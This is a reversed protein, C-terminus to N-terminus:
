KKSGGRENARAGSLMNEMAHNGEHCAYEYLPQDSRTMPLQVTWPRTWATPDDVVFEYILTDKDKLTFRETLHLNEDAASNLIIQGTGKDSFNTTDVVLTDGEWHGRSDGAWLRVEPRLHPRGDLYLIRANHVMENLFAIETTTQFIQVNNNYASPAMPPGANFGMICREGLSRDEPGSPPALWNKRSAEAKQQGLATMPPLRGDKPDVVLSTRMTGVLKTGREWWFDNYASEVDSVTHGDRQDKNDAAILRKAFAEAEAATLFEKDALEKPRELPTITAFSWVGRLDARGDATRPIALPSKAQLSQGAVGATGTGLTIVVFSAAACWQRM